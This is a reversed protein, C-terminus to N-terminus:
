YSIAFIIWFIALIIIVIILFLTMDINLSSVIYRVPLVLILLLGFLFVCLKERKRIKEDLDKLLRVLSLVIM